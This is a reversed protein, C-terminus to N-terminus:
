ENLYFETIDFYKQPSYGFMDFDIEYISYLKRILQAGVTKFAEVTRDVTTHGERGGKRVFEVDIDLNLKQKLYLSDRSFTEMKVVTTYSCIYFIFIM